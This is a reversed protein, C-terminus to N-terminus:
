HFEELLKKKSSIANTDSKSRTLGEQIYIIKPVMRNGYTSEHNFHEPTEVNQPPMEWDEFVGANWSIQAMNTNSITVFSFYTDKLWFNHGIHVTSIFHLTLSLLTKPTPHNSSYSISFVLVPVMSLTIVTNFQRTPGDSDRRFKCHGSKCSDLEDVARLRRLQFWSGTLCSMHGLELIRVRSDQCETSGRCLASEPEHQSSKLGGLDRGLLRWSILVARRRKARGKEEDGGCGSLSEGIASAFEL